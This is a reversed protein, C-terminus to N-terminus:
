MGPGRGMAPGGVPGPPPGGFGAGGFGGGGFGGGFGGGMGGAGGASGSPVPPGPNFGNRPYVFVTLSYSAFLDPSMGQITLGDVLVVLNPIENWKRVHQLLTEFSSARVQFTGMPYALVMAPIQNPDAPPGPLALPTLREVGTKEPWAELRQVIERVMDPYDMWAKLRDKMDITKQPMKAREIRALNAEAQKVKEQAMVVLREARPIMAVKEQLQANHEQHYTINQLTPRIGLLFIAAAVVITLVLGISVKAFMTLQM